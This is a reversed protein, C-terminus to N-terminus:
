SRKSTGDSDGTVLFVGHIDKKFAPLWDPSFGTGAATTGRDGLALAGELMGADFASDGTKDKIGM